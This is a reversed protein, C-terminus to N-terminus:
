TSETETTQRGQYTSIKEVFRGMEGLWVALDSFKLELQGIVLRDITKVTQNAETPHPVEPGDPKVAIPQGQPIKGDMLHEETHHIENRFSRLQDSVHDAVFRPRQENLVRRLGDPLDRNRRLRTFCKTARHMDSLCSEYHSVSRNMAGFNIASHTNFFEKLKQAGLRYEVLAAEVLRIYTTILSSIQHTKSVPNRLIKQLWYGPFGNQYENIDQVDFEIYMWIAGRWWSLKNFRNRVSPEETASM